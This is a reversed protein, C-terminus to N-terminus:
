NGTGTDDAPPAGGRARRRRTQVTAPKTSPAAVAASTERVSVALCGRCSAAVAGARGSTRNASRQRGAEAEGVVVASGDRDGVVPLTEGEGRLPVLLAADENAREVSEFGDPNGAGIPCSAGEEIGSSSQIPNSDPPRRWRTATEPPADCDSASSGYGAPAVAVPDPVTPRRRESAPRAAQELEGFDSRRAAAERSRVLRLALACVGPRRRKGVTSSKEERDPSSASALVLLAMATRAGPTFSGRM